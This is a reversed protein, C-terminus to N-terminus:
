DRRWGDDDRLGGAANRAGADARADAGQKRIENADRLDGIEAKSKQDARGKLYLGAAALLAAGGAAIERWFPALLALIASM